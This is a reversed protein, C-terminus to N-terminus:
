EWLKSERRFGFSLHGVAEIVNGRLNQTFMEFLKVLVITIQEGFAERKHTFLEVM